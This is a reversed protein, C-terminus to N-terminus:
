LDYTVGITGGLTNTFNGSWIHLMLKQRRGRLNSSANCDSRAQLQTMKGPGAQVLRCMDSLSVDDYGYFKKFVEDFESRFMVKFETLRGRIEYKFIILKKWKDSSKAEYLFALVRACIRLRAVDDM